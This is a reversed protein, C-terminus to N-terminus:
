RGNKESSVLKDKEWVGKVRVKGNAEYLVGPGHRMDELWPGEWRQGNKWHYVGTGTRRDDAFDGEYREGDPWHFVGKGHRMNDRWQGEYHSGSRWLGFGQGNAMERDVEGVYIVQEGNKASAFQLRRQASAAEMTRMAEKLEETRQEMRSGFVERLQREEVKLREQGRRLDGEMAQYQALLQEARTLRAELRARAAAPDEEGRLRWETLFARRQALISTDGTIAAIAEYRRMAEAHDGDIFSADAEVRELLRETRTEQQRALEKWRVRSELAVWLATLVMVLLIIPIGSRKM